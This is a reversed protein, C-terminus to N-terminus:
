TEKAKRVREEMLLLRHLGRLSYHLAQHLSYMIAILNNKRIPM